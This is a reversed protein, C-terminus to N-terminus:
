TASSARSIIRPWLHLLFVFGSAVIAGECILINRCGGFMSPSAAVISAILHICVILGILHSSCIRMAYFSLCMLELDLFFYLLAAMAGFAISPMQPCTVSYMNGFGDEAALMSGFVVLSHMGGQGLGVAISSSVDNLPYKLQAIEFSKKLLSEVHQHGKVYGFRFGVQLAAVVLIKFLINDSSSIRAVASAIVFSSIWAFAGVLGCVIHESAGWLTLSGFGLLIPGLALLASALVLISMDFKPAFKKM